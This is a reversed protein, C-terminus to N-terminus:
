THLLVVEIILLELYISCYIESSFKSLFTSPYTELNEVSFDKLISLTCANWSFFALLSNYMNKRLLIWSSKKRYAKLIYIFFLGFKVPSYFSQM